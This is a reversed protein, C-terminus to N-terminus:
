EIVLASSAHSMRLKHELEQIKDHIARLDIKELQEEIWESKIRIKEFERRVEAMDFEKLTNEMTKIKEVNRKVVDVDLQLQDISRTNKEIGGKIIDSMERFKNYMFDELGKVQSISVQGSVPSSQISPRERLKDKISEIENVKSSMIQMKDIIEKMMGAYTDINKMNEPIRVQKMSSMKTELINISQEIQNLRSDMSSLEKSATYGPKSPGINRKKLEMVDDILKDVRKMKELKKSFERIEKLTEDTNAPLNNSTLKLNDVDNNLNIIDLKNVTQTDKMEEVQDALVKLREEITRPTNEEEM